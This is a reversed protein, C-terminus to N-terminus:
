EAHLKALFNFIGKMLVLMTDRVALCVENKHRVRQIFAITIDQHWDDAAVILCCGPSLVQWLCFELTGCATCCCPRCRGVPEM